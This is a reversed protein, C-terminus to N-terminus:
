KNIKNSEKYHVYKFSKLFFLTKFLIKSNYLFIGNPM